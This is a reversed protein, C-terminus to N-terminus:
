CMLTHMSTHTRINTIHKILRENLLGLQYSIFAYKNNLARISPFHTILCENLLGIQFSLAYMSTQASINTIYTILHEIVLATQYVIFAYMSTFVWLAKFYVIFCENFFIILCHIWLSPFSYAQSTHFIANLSFHRRTVCVCLTSHMYSIITILCDIYLTNQKLDIWENNHNQVNRLNTYDTHTHTHTPPPTPAHAHSLSSM